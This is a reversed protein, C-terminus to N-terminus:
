APEQTKFYQRRYYRLEEVSERIDDLAQHKEKKRPIAEPGVWRKLLEKVTSVDVNRYHFFGALLPMYKGIFLRDMHVSNGCLPSVGPKLNGSLFALTQSEAERADVKSSRVRKVLGSAGHNKKCWDDMADLASDPQHVALVPGEALINLNKDTVLTAIELIVCKEPDLGTMELDIWGLNL